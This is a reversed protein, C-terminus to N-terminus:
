NPTSSSRAGSVDPLPRDARMPLQHSAVISQAGIVLAVFAVSFFLMCIVGRSTHTASVGTEAGRLPASISNVRPLLSILRAATMQSNPHVTQADPLAAIISDLRLIATQEPLRALEAAKLWPDIGLRALVSVVSLLM